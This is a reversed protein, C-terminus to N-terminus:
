AEPAILKATILHQCILGIACDASTNISVDGLAMLENISEELVAWLPTDRHEAFSLPVMALVGASPTHKPGTRSRLRLRSRGGSESAPPASPQSVPTANKALADGGLCGFYEEVCWVIVRQTLAERDSAAALVADDILGTLRQIVLAPTVGARREVGVFSWVAVRLAEDDIPARTLAHSIVSRLDKADALDEVSRLVFTNRTKIM